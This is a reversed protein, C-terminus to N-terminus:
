MMSIPLAEIDQLLNMRLSDSLPVLPPRVDWGATQYRAALLAKLTPASPRYKNLLERATTLHQQTTEADEGAKFQRYVDVAVPALVNAAATICGAAGARLGDLLLRDNGVFITLDPFEACLEQAHALVGTSDKVGIVREGAYDRLQHILDFSIPVESVQPIHYLMLHKGSPVAEDILRKYYAYLGEVITNKFYFPPVVVAVDVGLEFARRTSTITDPLSSCGTGALIAKGNAAEIAAQIVQEREDLSMSPGEGTTGLVLVGDCGQSILRSVHTQLNELQPRHDQIPTVAACIVGELPTTM